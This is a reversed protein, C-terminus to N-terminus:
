SISPTSPILQWILYIGIAFALVVILVIIRLLRTKKKPYIIPPLALETRIEPPLPIIGTQAIPDGFDSETPLVPRFFGTRGPIMPSLAEEEPQLISEICETEDQAPPLIESPGIGQWPTIAPATVTEQQSFHYRLLGFRQEQKM